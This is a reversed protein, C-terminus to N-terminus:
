NSEFNSPSYLTIIGNVVTAHCLNDSSERVRIKRKYYLNTTKKEGEKDIYEVTYYTYTAFGFPEEVREIKTITAGDILKGFDNGENTRLDQVGTFCLCIGATFWISILMMFVFRITDYIKSKVYKKYKEKEEETMEKEKDTTKKEKDTM